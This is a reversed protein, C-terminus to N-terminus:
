AAPAVKVAVHRMPQPIKRFLGMVGHYCEFVHAGAAEMEDRLKAKKEDSTYHAALVTCVKLGADRAALVDAMTDGIYLIEHPQIGQAKAYAIARLVMEPHPKAHEVDNRCIILSFYKLYGSRGVSAKVNPTSGNSTIINLMPTYFASRSAEYTIFDFFDQFGKVLLKDLPHHELLELYQHDAQKKFAEFFTNAIALKKSCEPDVTIGHQNNQAAKTILKYGKRADMGGTLELLIEPSADIGLVSKLAYSSAVAHLYSSDVITGDCDFIIAKIAM